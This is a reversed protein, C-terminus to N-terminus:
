WNNLLFVICVYVYWQKWQLLDFIWPLGDYFENVLM